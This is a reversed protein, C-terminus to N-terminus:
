ASSWPAKSGKILKPAPLIKIKGSPVGSCDLFDLIRSIREDVEHCKVEVTLHELAVPETAMDYKAGNEVLDVHVEHFQLILKELVPAHQLFCDLAGLNPTLCWENLLLNKLKPFEPCRMLDKRFIFETQASILELSTSASLGELLCTKNGYNSDPCGECTSDGCNGTEYMKDCCDLCTHLRVFASALLPMIELLPTRYPFSLQTRESPGFWCYTISLRRVSPSMIRKSVIECGKMRLDELAPCGSLDLFSTGLHLNFLELRVLYNSILLGDPLAWRELDANSRVRLVKAECSLGYRVWWEMCMFAEYTDDGDYSNIEVETAPCQGRFLFFDNVFSMLHGANLFKSVDTIRVAPVSKWVNRWRRALVCTRVADRSPLFSLVQQLPGDPLTSLRDASGEVAARVTRSDESPQSM